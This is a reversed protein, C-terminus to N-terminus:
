IIEDFKQFNKRCDFRVVKFKSEACPKYQYYAQTSEFSPSRGQPSYKDNTVSSFKKIPNAKPFMENDPPSAVNSLAGQNQTKTIGSENGGGRPV